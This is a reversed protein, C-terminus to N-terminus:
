VDTSIYNLLGAVASEIDVADFSNLWHSVFLSRHLVLDFLGSNTGHAVAGLTDRNRLVKLLVLLDTSPIVGIGVGKTAGVATPLVLKATTRSSKNGEVCLTLRARVGVRTLIYSSAIGSVCTIVTSVAIVNVAAVSQQVIAVRNVLKLEEAIIRAYV